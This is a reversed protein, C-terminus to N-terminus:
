EKFFPVEVKATTGPVMGGKVVEQTRETTQVLECKPCKRKWRRITKDPVDVGGYVDSGHAEFPISYGKQFIPDYSPENWTHVCNKQIAALQSEADKLQQQLQEIKDLLDKAKGM